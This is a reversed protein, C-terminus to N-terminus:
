RGERQKQQIHVHFHGSARINRNQRGQTRQAVPVMHQGAFLSFLYDLDHFGDSLIPHKVALLDLDHFVILEELQIIISQLFFFNVVVICFNHSRAREQATSHQGLARTCLLQDFCQTANSTAVCVREREGVSM